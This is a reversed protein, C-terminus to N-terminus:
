ASTDWPFVCAAYLSGAAAAILWWAILGPFIGLAGGFTALAEPSHGLVLYALGVLVAGPFYLLTGVVAGM